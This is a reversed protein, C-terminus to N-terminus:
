WFCKFVLEVNEGPLVMAEDRPAAQVTIGFGSLLFFATPWCRGHVCVCCVLIWLLIDALLM